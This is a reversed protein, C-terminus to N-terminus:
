LHETNFQLSRPYIAHHRTQANIAPAPRIFGEGVQHCLYRRAYQITWKASQDTEYLAGHQFWLHSVYISIRGHVAGSGWWFCSQYFYEVVPLSLHHKQNVAELRPVLLLIHRPSNIFAYRSKLIACSHDNKVWLFKLFHFSEFGFRLIEIWM